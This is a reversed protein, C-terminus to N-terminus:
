ESQEPLVGPGEGSPEDEITVDYRAM